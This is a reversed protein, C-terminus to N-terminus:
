TFLPGGHAESTKWRVHRMSSNFNSKYRQNVVRLKAQIRADILVKEWFFDPICVSCSCSSTRSAAGSANRPNGNLEYNKTSLM